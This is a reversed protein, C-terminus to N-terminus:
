ALLPLVTEVLGLAMLVGLMAFIFKIQTSLANFKAEFKADLADFRSDVSDFRADVSEFRSDVSDFRADVSEFRSDVSDFRADVSDFRADVSDFRTEVSEFRTEVSEFRSDVSEFRSDVSDFRADFRSDVSDFRADVSDFKGCFKEDLARYDGRVIEVAADLDAKTVLHETIENGLARALGEAQRDEFGSEKLRDALRLTDIVPHTM